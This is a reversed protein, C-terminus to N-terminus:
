YRRTKEALKDLMNSGSVAEAVKEIADDLLDELPINETVKMGAYVIAKDATEQLKEDKVGKLELALKFGEAALLDSVPSEMFREVPDTTGTLKMMARQMFTPKLVAKLLPTMAAKIVMNATRGANLFAIDKAASKNSEVMNEAIRKTKSMKNDQKDKVTVNKFTHTNSNVFIDPTDWINEPTPELSLTRIVDKRVKDWDSISDMLTSVAKRINSREVPPVEVKNLVRSYFLRDFLPILRDFSVGQHMEGYSLTSVCFVTMTNMSDFYLPLVVEQGLLFPCAPMNSKKSAWFRVREPFKSGLREPAQAVYEAWSSVNGEIRLTQTYANLLHRESVPILPVKPPQKAQLINASTRILTDLKSEQQPGMQLDLSMYNM